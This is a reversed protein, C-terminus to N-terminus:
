ANRRVTVVTIDDNQGWAQAAEAIEQASKGSIERTRDFGFLERQANEAEVVGDSVFTLCEGSAAITTEPYEADPNLGLPLGAEVEVECGDLYPALHGANAAQVNGNPHFLAACCTVFGGRTKGRLSRNLHALVQGPQRSILDGLAGVVTAVLMAAQLGKGSVDGTVLLLSGDPAPFLQYFDGGVEQAPLYAADITWLSDQQNNSTILLQQVGRAAELEGAMRQKERRDIALQWLLVTLVAASLALGGLEVTIIYFGNWLPSMSAQDGGTLNSIVGFMRELVPMALVFIFLHERFPAKSRILRIWAILIAGCSIFAMARPVLTYYNFSGYVDHDSIHLLPFILWSLWLLAQLWLQRFKLAELVFSTLLMSTGYRAIQQIVPLGNLFWPTAEPAISFFTYAGYFSSVGLLLALLLLDFRHRESFWALLVPVMLVLYIVAIVITPTFRHQWLALSSEAYGQPTLAHDTLFYPGEDRPSFIFPRRVPVGLRLAIQLLSGKGVASAPIAFSRNRMIQSTAVNDVDGVTAIQHGNVYVEYREILRGLGLVLQTRNASDPLEVTKRLCRTDRGLTRPGRPLQITPWDSDDLDAKVLATSENDSSRWDGSIDIYIGSQAAASVAFLALALLQTTIPYKNM